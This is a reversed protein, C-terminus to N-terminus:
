ITDFFVSLGGQKEAEKHEYKKTLGITSDAFGVMM